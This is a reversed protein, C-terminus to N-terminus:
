DQRIQPNSRMALSLTEGRHYLTSQGCLDRLYASSVLVAFVITDPTTNEEAYRRSRQPLYAKARGEERKGRATGFCWCRKGSAIWRCVRRTRWRRRPLSARTSRVM